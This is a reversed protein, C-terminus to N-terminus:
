RANIRISPVVIMGTTIDAKVDITDRLRLTAADYLEVEYGSGYIFLSKGTSSIAFYYRTRAEFERRRVVRNTTLDFVWFESRRNGNSGSIAVSYGTKRDPSVLMGLLSVNAPGIPAFDFLRTSLDLRAIGFVQKHLIPDTTIFLNVLKGPERLSDVAPGINLRESGPIDLKALEIRGAIKFDATDFILIDNQFLYLQKGDPSLRMNDRGDFADRAEEPLNATRVIKKQALDIVAFRPPEIEFRDIKKDAVQILLYILGRASDPEWSNFRVRTGGHDLVFANTNKRTAVDIIEIGNHDVTAAYITKRDESIRLDHAVGTSLEIHDIVKRKTEDIVQIQKPWTGLFVLGQASALSAFMLALLAARGIM